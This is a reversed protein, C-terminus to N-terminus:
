HKPRRSPAASAGALLPPYPFPPTKRLLRLNLDALCNSSLSQGADIVSRYPVSPLILLDLNRLHCPAASTTAPAATTTATMPPTEVDDAADFAFVIRTAIM